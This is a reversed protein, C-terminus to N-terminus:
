DYCWLEKERFSWGRGDIKMMLMMLMMLMMMMMEM